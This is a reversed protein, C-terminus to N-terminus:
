QGNRKQAANEHSRRLWSSSSSMTSIRAASARPLVMHRILLSVNHWILGVRLLRLISSVIKGTTASLAPGPKTPDTTGALESNRTETVTASNLVQRRLTASTAIMTLGGTSFCERALNSVAGSLRQPGFCDRFATQCDLGNFISTRTLGTAAVVRM